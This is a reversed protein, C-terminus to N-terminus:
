CVIRVRCEFRRSQRTSELPREIRKGDCVPGLQDTPNFGVHEDIWEEFGGFLVVGLKDVKPQLQNDVLKDAFASIVRTLVDRKEM